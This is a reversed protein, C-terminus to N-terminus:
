QIGGFVQLTWLGSLIYLIFYNKRGLLPEVIAAIVLGSINLFLHMHWRAFVYKGITAVM